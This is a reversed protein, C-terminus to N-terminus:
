ISSSPKKNEMDIEWVKKQLRYVQRVLGIIAWATTIYFLGVMIQSPVFMMALFGLVSLAQLEIGGIGDHGYVEYKGFMTCAHLEILFSGAVVVIATMTVYNNAELAVGIAMASACGFVFDLYHDVLFGWLVLGTKRRRGIEGDLFDTIYHGVVAVACLVVFWVNFRKLYAGVLTMVSWGITMLTLHNTQLWSPVKDALPQIYKDQWPRLLSTSAKKHGSIDDIDLKNVSVGM